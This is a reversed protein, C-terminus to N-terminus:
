KFENFQDVYSQVKMDQYIVIHNGLLTPAMELFNKFAKIRHYLKGQRFRGIMNTNEDILSELHPSNLLNKIDNDRLKKNM